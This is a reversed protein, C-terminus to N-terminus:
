IFIPMKGCKLFDFSWTSASESVLTCVASSASLSFKLMSQQECETSHQVVSALVSFETPHCSGIGLSVDDDRLCAANQLPFVQSTCKSDDLGSRLILSICIRWGGFFSRDFPNQAHFFSALFAAQTQCVLSFLTGPEHESFRCQNKLKPGALSTEEETVM